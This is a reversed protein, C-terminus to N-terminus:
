ACITAQMFVFAAEVVGVVPHDSRTATGRRPAARVNRFEEESRRMDSTVWARSFRSELVKRASIFVRASLSRERRCM